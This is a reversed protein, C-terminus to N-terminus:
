AEGGDIRRGGVVPRAVAARDVDPPVSLWEAPSEPTRGGVSGDPGSRNMQRGAPSQAFGGPTTGMATSPPRHVSAIWDVLRQFHEAQQDRLARVSPVRPDDAHRDLWADMADILRCSRHAKDVEEAFFVFARPLRRVNRGGGLVARSPAVAHLRLRKPTDLGVRGSPPSGRDTVPPRAM